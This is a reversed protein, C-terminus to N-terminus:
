AAEMLGAQAYFDACDQEYMALDWMLWAEYGYLETLEM